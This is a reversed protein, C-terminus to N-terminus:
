LFVPFERVVLVVLLIHSDQVVLNWQFDQGAQHVQDLLPAQLSLLCQCLLAKLIVLDVLLFLSVQHDHFLLLYLDKLVEPVSLVLLNDRLAQCYHVLHYSKM